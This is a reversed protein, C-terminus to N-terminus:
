REREDENTSRMGAEVEYFNPMVMCQDQDREASVIKLRFSHIQDDTLLLHTKRKRKRRKHFFRRVSGRV